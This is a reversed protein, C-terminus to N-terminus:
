ESSGAVLGISAFFLVVAPDLPGLISIEFCGLILFWVFILLVLFEIKHHESIGCWNSFCPRLATGLGWTFLAAGFLGTGTLLHLLLNHATQFQQKHWVYFSGSSSIMYYGHGFWPADRFSRLAIPWLEDRGSAGALDARTQGRLIYSGISDPVHNVADVYPVLATLVGAVALIVTLFLLKRRVLFLITLVVFTALLSARSRSIYLAAGCIALGPIWFRRTWPWDWLLRSGLLLILGNSAVAGLTNPHMYGSPREGSLIARYELLLIAACIMMVTLFLHQLITGVGDQSSCLIATVTALMVLTLLEIAHGFSVARLPSWLFSVSCWLAFLMLPILRALAAGTRRHDHMRLLIMGLLLLSGGRAAIKVLAIWDVAGFNLPGARGPISLCTLSLLWCVMLLLHFEPSRRLRPRAPMAWSYAPSAAM